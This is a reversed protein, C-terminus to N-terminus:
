EEKCRRLRRKRHIPAPRWSDSGQAWLSGRSTQLRGARRSGATVRARSANVRAHEYLRRGLAEHAAGALGAVFQAPNLGGSTEDAWEATVLDEFWNRRGAREELVILLHHNFQRKIRLLRSSRVWRLPKQKCAVELHGCRPFSASLGSKKSLRSWGPRISGAFCRVHAAGARTRLTAILLIAGAAVVRDAGHRWKPLKRGMRHAEAELAAVGCAENEGARTCASLGCFGAGVVAPRGRQEPLPAM